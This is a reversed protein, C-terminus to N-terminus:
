FRSPGGPWTFSAMIMGSGPGYIRDAPPVLNLDGTQARIHPNTLDALAILLEAEEAGAIRDFLNEGAYESAIIRYAPAWSIAAQQVDAGGAQLGVGLSGFQVLGPPRWPESMNS